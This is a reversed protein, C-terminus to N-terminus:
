YSQTVRIVTVKVLGLRQIEGNVALVGASTGSSYPTYRFTWVRAINNIVAATYLTGSVSKGSVSFAGPNFAAYQTETMYYLDMYALVPGSGGIITNELMGVDLNDGQAFILTAFSIDRRKVRYDVPYTKMAPLSSLVISSRMVLDKSKSVPEVDIYTLFGISATIAAGSIGGSPTTVTPPSTFGTGGNTLNVSSISNTAVAATAAAGGGGGGGSFTVVPSVYSTGPTLLEVSSVSTAVVFISAVTGNGGGGSFSVSPAQYASGTSTLTVSEVGTVTLEAHAAASTGDGTITVSPRKRYGTGANTITISTLVDLTLNGTATAQTGGADDPPGITVTVTTYGSGGVDVPITGITTAALVATGAGGSGTGADTIVVAPVDTYNVGQAVITIGSLTSGVLLVQTTAGSGTGTISAGPTQTYGGGGSTLTISAIKGVPSPASITYTGAASSGGGGSFGLNYTGPTGGTGANTITMSIVAAGATGGVVTASAVMQKTYVTTIGTQKDVEYFTLIPGPLIEYMWLVRKNSTIKVGTFKNSPYRVAWEPNKLSDGFTPLTRDRPDMPVAIIPYATSDQDFGYIFPQGLIPEEQPM